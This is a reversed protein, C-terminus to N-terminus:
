SKTPIATKIQVAHIRGDNLAVQLPAQVMRHQDIRTKNQFENSIVFIQFHDLTGTMDQVTIEAEPFTRVLMQHIENPQIM